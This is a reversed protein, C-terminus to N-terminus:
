WYCTPSDVYSIKSANKTSFQSNSPSSHVYREIGQM